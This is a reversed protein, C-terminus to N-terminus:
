QNLQVKNIVSHFSTRGEGEKKKRKINRHLTLSSTQLRIRERLFCKHIYKPNVSTGCNQSYKVRKKKDRERKKKKLSVERTMNNM